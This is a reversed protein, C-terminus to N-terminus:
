RLTSRTSGLMRGAADRKVESLLYKSAGYALAVSLAGLSSFGWAMLFLLGRALAEALVIAAWVPGHWTM